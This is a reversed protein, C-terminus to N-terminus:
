TAPWRALESGDGSVCRLGGMTLLRDFPLGTLLEAVHPMAPGVFAHLDRYTDQSMSITGSRPMAAPVGNLRDKSRPDLAFSLQDSSQQVVVIIPEKTVARSVPPASLLALAREALRDLVKDAHIRVSPEANVRAAARTMALTVPLNDDRAKRRLGDIVTEAQARDARDVVILDLFASVHNGGPAIELDTSLLERRATLAEDLDILGDRQPAPASSEYVLSNLGLRADRSRVLQTSITIM